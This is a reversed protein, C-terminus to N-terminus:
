ESGGAFFAGPSVGLAAALEALTAVTPTGKGTEYNSVTLYSRHIDLALQERSMGADIRARRLLAGDFSPHM